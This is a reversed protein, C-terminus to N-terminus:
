LRVTVTRKRDTSVSATGAVMRAAYCLQDARHFVTGFVEGQAAPSLGASFTIEGLPADTERLRYRTQRLRRPPRPGASRARGEPRPRTFLVVFEEAAM